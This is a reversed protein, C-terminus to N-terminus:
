RVPPDKKISDDILTQCQDYAKNSPFGFADRTHDLKQISSLPEKTRLALQICIAQDVDEVRFKPDLKDPNCIVEIAGEPIRGDEACKVTIPYDEIADAATAYDPDMNNNVWDCISDQTIYYKCEQGLSLGQLAQSYVEENFSEPVLELSAIMAQCRDFDKDSAFCFAPCHADITDTYQSEIFPKKQELCWAFASARPLDDICYVPDLSVNSSAMKVEAAGVPINGNAATKVSDLWSWGKLMSDPTPSGEASVPNRSLHKRIGAEDIYYKVEHDQKLNDLSKQYLPKVFNNDLDLNTICRDVELVASGGISNLLNDFSVGKNQAAKYEELVKARLSTMEPQDIFNEDFKPFVSDFDLGNKVCFREGENKYHTLLLDVSAKEQFYNRLEDMSKYKSITEAMDNAWEGLAENETTGGPYVNEFSLGHKRSVDAAIPRFEQLMADGLKLFDDESMAPETDIRIDIGEAFDIDYKDRFFAVVPNSQPDAFSPFRNQLLERQFNNLHNEYHSYAESSNSSDHQHRELQRGTELDAATMHHKYHQNLVMNIRDKLDEKFVEVKSFLISGVEFQINFDPAKSLPQQHKISWVLAANKSIDKPLCPTHDPEQKIYMEIAGKPVKDRHVINACDHLVDNVTNYKGNLIDDPTIFYNWKTRKAPEVENRLKNLAHKYIFENFVHPNPEKELLRHIIQECKDKNQQNAFYFNAQTIDKDPHDLLYFLKANDSECFASKDQIAWLLSQVEQLDEAKYEGPHIKSFSPTKMVIEAADSPLIGNTSTKVIGTLSTEVKEADFSDLNSFNGYKAEDSFDNKLKDKHLLNLALKEISEEDIYYTPTNKLRLGDLKRQYTEQNFRLPDFETNKNDTM